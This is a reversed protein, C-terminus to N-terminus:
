GLPGVIFSHCGTVTGYVSGDFIFCLPFSCFSPFHIPFAFTVRTRLLCPAAHTYAKPYLEVCRLVYLVLVLRELVRDRFCVDGGRAVGVLMGVVFVFFFCFSLDVWPRSSRGIKLSLKKNKQHLVSIQRRVM